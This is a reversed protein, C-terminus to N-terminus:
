LTCLGGEANVQELVYITLAFYREIRKDIGPNDEVVTSWSWTLGSGWPKAGDYVKQENETLLAAVGMLTADAERDENLEVAEFVTVVDAKGVDAWDQAKLQLRRDLDIIDRRGKEDSILVLMASYRPSRDQHRACLADEVDDLDETSINALGEKVKGDYRSEYMQIKKLTSEVLADPLGYFELNARRASSTYVLKDYLPDEENRIDKVEVKAVEIEETAMLVINATIMAGLFGAALWPRLTM